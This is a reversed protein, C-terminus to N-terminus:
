APDTGMPLLVAGFFTLLAGVALAVLQFRDGIAHHKLADYALVGGIVLVGAAILAAGLQRKTIPHNLPM